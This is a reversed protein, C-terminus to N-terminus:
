KGDADVPGPTVVVGETMGYPEIGMVCTGPAIGFAPDSLIYTIRRCAFAGTFLGGFDGRPIYEELLLVDGVAFGRDDKRVEFNKREACVDSFYPDVTKLRHVRPAKM